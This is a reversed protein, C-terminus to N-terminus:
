QVSNDFIEQLFLIGVDTINIKATTEQYNGDQITEASSYQDYNYRSEIKRKGCFNEIDAYWVFYTPLYM